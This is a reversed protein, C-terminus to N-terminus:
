PALHCRHAILMEGNQVALIQCASKPQHGPHNNEPIIGHPTESSSFSAGYEDSALSTGTRTRFYLHKHVANGFKDTDPGM